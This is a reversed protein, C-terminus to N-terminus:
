RGTASSHGVGAGGSPGPDEADGDATNVNLGDNGDGGDGSFDSSALSLPVIDKGRADWLSIEETPQNTGDLLAVKDGEDEADARYLPALEPQKYADVTQGRYL